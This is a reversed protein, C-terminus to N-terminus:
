REIDTGLLEVDTNYQKLWDILEDKLIYWESKSSVQSKVKFQRFMYQIYREIELCTYETCVIIHVANLKIPNGTNLKALRCKVDKKTSGIKHYLTNETKTEAIYVNGLAKSKGM